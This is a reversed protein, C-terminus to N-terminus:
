WRGGFPVELVCVPESVGASFGGAGERQGSGTSRGLEQGGVLFRSSISPTARPEGHACRERRVALEAQREWSKRSNEARNPGRLLRKQDGPQAGM